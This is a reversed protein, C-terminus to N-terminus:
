QQDSTEELGLFAAAEEFSTVCRVEMTGDAAPRALTVPGFRGDLQVSKVGGAGSAVSLGETSRSTMTELTSVLKRTEDATPRRAKGTQKDVIIDKTAVYNKPGKQGASNTRSAQTFVVGLGLVLAVTALTAILRRKGGRPVRQRSNSM